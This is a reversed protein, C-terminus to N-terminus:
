FFSLARDRTEAKSSISYAICNKVERSYSLARNRAEAVSSISYTVCNKHSTRLHSHILEQFCQDQKDEEGEVAKTRNKKQFYEDLQSQFLLSRILESSVLYTSM